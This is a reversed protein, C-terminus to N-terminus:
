IVGTTTRTRIWFSADAHGSASETVPVTTEWRPFLSTRWMAHNTVRRPAVQSAPSYYLVSWTYRLFQHARGGQALRDLITPSCIKRKKTVHVVCSFLAQISWSFLHDALDVLQQPTSVLNQPLQSVPSKRNLDFDRVKSSEPM